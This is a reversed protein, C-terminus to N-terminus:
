GLFKVKTQSFQCKEANLTLGSHQLCQLVLKLHMQHEKQNRGHVLRDDMHCVVGELDQLIEAM